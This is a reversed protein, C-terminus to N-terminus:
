QPLALVKELQYRRSGKIFVAGKFELVFKAIGDVSDVIMVQDERGGGALAARKIEAAYDGLLILFDNERLPLERGLMEHYGAAHEGLEEMCGIIFLRPYDQPAIDAFSSLADLMSAPNANYCDVYIMRGEEYRIEGRLGGPTWSVVRSQIDISKIGLRTAACIALAANEAQGPSVKPLTFSLPAPDDIVLSITTQGEHGTINFYVRGVPPESLLFTSGRELILHKGPLNQFAAFRSTKEGMINLGGARVARSLVAKESAVGELSGLKELHAPAVLTTIVMDPEIMSALVGMEGPESIGAEIVAYKHMRRDIRTLTLPVGIHNNFNEETALVHPGLLRALLNKTSTKGASGTVAIVTGKFLRRHERAIAQFARLSDNVLLQPLRVEPNVREVIAAAAGSEKAAALFSHGDRRDTKLAVFVQGPSLQRTDTSFGTMQVSATPAPNWEGSTWAALNKASFTPM